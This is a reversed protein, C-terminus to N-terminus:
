YYTQFNTRLYNSNKIFPNKGDLLTFGGYLFHRTIKNNKMESVAHYSTDDNRFIVLKGDDPSIKDVVLCDEENPQSNFKSINENKLKYFELNGGEADESIKNFYLLFVIIREDSDRHIERKYGNLATSYDYLLEVPLSKLRLLKMKFFMKIFKYLRFLLYKIVQSSKFNLLPKNNMEKYLKEFRSIKSKNLFNTTKFKHNKIDLEKCCFQFFEESSVKNVLNKWSESNELLKFFDINSSTLAVRGGHISFKNNDALIKNADNILKACLNKSLFKNIIKYKM